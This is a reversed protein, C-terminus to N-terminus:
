LLWLLFCMIYLSFFILLSKEDSVICTLLCYFSVEKILGVKVAMNFSYNGWMRGGKGLGTRINEMADIM